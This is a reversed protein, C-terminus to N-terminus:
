FSMLRRPVGRANTTKRKLSCKSVTDYLQPPPTPRRYWEFLSRVSRKSEFAFGLPEQYLIAQKLIVSRGLVRSMNPPLVQCNIAGPWGPSLYARYPLQRHGERTWGRRSCSAFCGLLIGIRQLCVCCPWSVCLVLFFLRASSDRMGRYPSSYIDGILLEVSVMRTVAVEGSMGRTRRMLCTAPVHLATMTNLIFCHAWEGVYGILTKCLIRREVAVCCCCVFILGPLLPLPDACRFECQPRM